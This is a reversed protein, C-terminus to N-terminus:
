HLINEGSKRAINANIAMNPFACLGCSYYVLMTFLLTENDIRRRKKEGSKTVINTSIVM